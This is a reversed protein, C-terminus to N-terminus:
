ERSMCELIFERSNLYEIQALYLLRLPVPVPQHLIDNYFKSKKTMVDMLDEMQRRKEDCVSPM